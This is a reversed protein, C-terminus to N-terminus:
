HDKVVMKLSGESITVIQTDTDLTRQITLVPKSDVYVHNITTQNKDKKGVLIQNGQTDTPLRAVDPRWDLCARIWARDFQLALLVREDKYLPFFFHGSLAIPEYQVIVKQNDWLPVKVKYYDLSTTSDTYPQFTLEDDAGTESLVKGEVYFPWVPRTYAPYKVAPDSDVELRLVYDFQYRNTLEDLDDTAEQSVAAGRLTVSVIRFTKSNQYIKASFDSDLSVEMQPAWPQSPFISLEVRAEPMPQKARSTELTGRTDLDSSISSRILFHDHVGTVSESNTIDKTATGAETYSNLVSVTERHVPPFCAEMSAVEAKRIPEATGTPKTDTFTYKDAGVDYYMGANERDLLWFLFDHFSADNTQVGLGLSLVPRQTTAADWTYATTVGDPKNDEILDKYTKDVYLVTPRHQRWLVTGRDAFRLTYRRHLVPAGEVEYFVRELVSKEYVLGKLVLAVATKEATAEVETFARALSIEVSVLDDKVFSAFLTDESPSSVCVVWFEAFGEYGWPKMELDFKKLSGAVCTYDTGSITLKLSAKIRDFFSM